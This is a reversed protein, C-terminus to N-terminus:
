PRLVRLRNAWNVANRMDFVRLTRGTKPDHSVPLDLKRGLKLWPDEHGFSTYSSGSEFQVTWAAGGTDGVYMGYRAMARLITKKWAALHLSNIQARTMDLYFHQGLAPANVNSRGLESCRRGRGGHLNAPHVKKGNTCLVGMFLAHSIRGAELEAPRIVGAAPPFYAATADVGLGDGDIRERGGSSAVLTGGGRPKRQVNYLGYEWGHVQDIVSMHHDSGGAPRAADPIRIRMGEIAPSTGWTTIGWYDRFHLRFRPDDPESFYIPHRWDESTGANGGQQPSPGLGFGVLRRVIQASNRALRPNSGVPTNFPSSDSYPRWCAGPLNASGFNGFACSVSPVPAGIIVKLRGGQLGRPGRSELTSQRRLARRIRHLPVRRRVKGDARRFEVRAGKIAEPKVGRPAFVLVRHSKRVPYITKKAAGAPAPTVLIAVAAVLAVITGGLSPM